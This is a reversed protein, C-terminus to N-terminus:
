ETSETKKKKEEKEKKAKSEKEIRNTQLDNKATQVPSCAKVCIKKAGIGDM